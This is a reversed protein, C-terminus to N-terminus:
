GEKKEQLRKWVASRTEKKKKGWKYMKGALSLRMNSTAFFMNSKMFHFPASDIFEVGAKQLCDAGPIATQTEIPFRYIVHKLCFSLIGLLMERPSLQIGALIVSKGM